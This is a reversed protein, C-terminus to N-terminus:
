SNIGILKVVLSLNTDIDDQIGFIWTMAAKMQAETIDQSGALGSSNPVVEGPDLTNLIPLVNDIYYQEKMNFDSDDAYAVLSSVSGRMWRGSEGILDKEEQTLGDYTAM